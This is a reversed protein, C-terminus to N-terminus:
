LRKKDHQTHTKALWAAHQGNDRYLGANFWCFFSTFLRCQAPFPLSVVYFSFSSFFNSRLFSNPKTLLRVAPTLLASSKLHFQLLCRPLAHYQSPTVSVFCRSQFSLHPPMLRPPRIGARGGASAFRSGTQCASSHPPPPPPPQWGTHPSSSM